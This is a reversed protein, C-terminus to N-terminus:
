VVFPRFKEDEQRDGKGPRPEILKMRRIYTIHRITGIPWGLTWLLIVEMPRGVVKVMGAM